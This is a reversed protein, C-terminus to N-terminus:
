ANRMQFNQRAKEKKRRAAMTCPTFFRPSSPLAELGSFAILDPSRTGSIAFIPASTILPDYAPAGCHSPNALVSPKWHM